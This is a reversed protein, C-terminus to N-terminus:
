QKKILIIGLFFMPISLIMGLSLLGYIYGIHADPVRFFELFIRSSSYLILFLGSINGPKKFFKIKIFFNLLILIILGELIAEYIQSPHRPLPGGNPFVIGWPVNTVKGWLESNIFNALRGLFIGIPASCAISDMIQLYNIKNKKAYVWSFFMTGILGGHFSMGGKRIDFIISSPNNLFYDFNYFIVYGLRGGIIIGFAVWLLLNDIDQKTTNGEILLVVRKCNWMGLLLGSAYAIGYWKISIGFFYFAVPDIEPFIM